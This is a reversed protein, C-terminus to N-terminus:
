TSPKSIQAVKLNETDEVQVDQVAELGCDQRTQCSGTWQGTGMRRWLPWTKSTKTTELAQYKAWTLGRESSAAEGVAQGPQGERLKM